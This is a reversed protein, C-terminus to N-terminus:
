KSLYINKKNNPTFIGNILELECLLLRQVQGLLFIPHLELCLEQQDMTSLIIFFNADHFPLCYIKPACITNILKTGDLRWNNKKEKKLAGFHTNFVKTLCCLFKKYDLISSQRLNFEMLFNPSFTNPQIYFTTQTYFTQVYKILRNPLHLHLNKTSLFSIQYM